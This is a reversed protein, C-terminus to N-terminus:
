GNWNSVVKLSSDMIFFGEVVQRKQSNQTKAKKLKGIAPNSATKTTGTSVGTRASMAPAIAPAARPSMWHSIRFDRSGESDMHHIAAVPM